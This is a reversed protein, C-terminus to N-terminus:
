NHSGQEQQEDEAEGSHTVMMEANMAQVAAEILQCIQDDTIPIHYKQFALKAVKVAYEFKEDGRGHGIFSQEAARVATEIIDAAFNYNHSRLLQILFPILYRLVALIASVIVVQVINFIIENM